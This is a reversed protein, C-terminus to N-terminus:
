REGARMVKWRVTLIDVYVYKSALQPEANRVLWTDRVVLPTSPASPYFRRPYPCSCPWRSPRAALPSSAIVDRLARLLLLLLLTVVAVSVFLVGTCYIWLALGHLSRLACVRDRAGDRVSSAKLCPFGSTRGTCVCARTWQGGDPSNPLQMM